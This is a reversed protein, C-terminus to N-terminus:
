EILRPTRAWECRTLNCPDPVNSRVKKQDECGPCRVGSLVALAYPLRVSSAEGEIKRVKRCKVSHVRKETGSKEEGHLRPM